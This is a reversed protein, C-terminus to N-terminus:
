GDLAQLVRLLTEQAVEEALGEYRPDDTRLRRSLAYPLGKL